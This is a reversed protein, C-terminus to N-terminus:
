DTRPDADRGYPLGLLWISIAGWVAVLVIWVLTAALSRWGGYPFGGPDFVEESLPAYSFWGEEIPRRLQTVVDGGIARLLGALAVVAVIRQGLNLSAARRM